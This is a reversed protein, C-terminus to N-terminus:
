FKAFNQKKEILKKMKWASKSPNKESNWSKKGFSSLRPQYLWNPSSHPHSSTTSPFTERGHATTLIGPRGAPRGASRMYGTGIGSGIGSGIETGIAGRERRSFPDNTAKGILFSCWPPSTWSFPQKGILFHTKSHHNEIVERKFHIMSWKELLSHALISCFGRDPAM